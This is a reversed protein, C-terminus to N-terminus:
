ITFQLIGRVDTKKELTSNKHLGCQMTSFDSLFTSSTVWYLEFEQLIGVLIRTVHKTTMQKNKFRM